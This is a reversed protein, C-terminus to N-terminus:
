INYGIFNIANRLGTYKDVINKLMDKMDIPSKYYEDLIDKIDDNKKSGIELADLEFETGLCVSNM